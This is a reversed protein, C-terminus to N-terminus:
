RGTSDDFHQGAGGHRVDLAHLANIIKWFDLRGEARRTKQNAATILPDDFHEPLEALLLESVARSTGEETTPVVEGTLFKEVVRVMAEKYRVSDPATVNRVGNTVQERHDRLTELLRRRKKETEIWEILIEIDNFQGPLDEKPWEVECRRKKITGIVENIAITRCYAFAHEILQGDAARGRRRSLEWLAIRIADQAMKENCKTHGMVSAVLRKRQTRDFDDYWADFTTPNDPPRDWPAKTAM